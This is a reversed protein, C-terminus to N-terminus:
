SMLMEIEGVEDTRPYTDWSMDDKPGLMLAFVGM